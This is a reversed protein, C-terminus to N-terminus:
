FFMTKFNLSGLLLIGIITIQWLAIVIYTIFLYCLLRSVIELCGLCVLFLHFSALVIRFTLGISSCGFNFHSFHLRLSICPHVIEFRYAITVVYGGRMMFLLCTITLRLLQLLINLCVSMNSFNILFNCQFRITFMFIFGYNIPVLNLALM